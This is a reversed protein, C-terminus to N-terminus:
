KKKRRVGLLLCVVSVSPWAATLFFDNFQVKFFAFFVYWLEFPKKKTDRKDRFNRVINSLCLLAGITFNPFNFIDSSRHPFLIKQVVYKSNESASLLPPKAKGDFIKINQFFCIHVCDIRIWESPHDVGVIHWFKM